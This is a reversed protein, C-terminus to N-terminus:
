QMQALRQSAKQAVYLDKGKEAVTRYENEADEAKGLADYVEALRFTMIIYRLNGKQPNSESKFYEWCEEYKGSAFLANNRATEVSLKEGQTLTKGRIENELREYANLASDPKNASTYLNVLMAMAEAKSKAADSKNLFAILAQEAEKFRGMAQYAQSVMMAAFFSWETATKSSLESKLKRLTQEPELETFLTRCIEETIGAALKRCIFTGVFFIAAGLAIGLLIGINLWRYFIIPAFALGCLLGYLVSTKKYLMIISEKSVAENIM